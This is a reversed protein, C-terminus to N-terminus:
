FSSCANGIRFTRRKNKKINGSDSGHNPGFSPFSVSAKTDKQSEVNEVSSPRKM